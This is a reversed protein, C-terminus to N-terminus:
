EATSRADSIHSTSIRSQGITNKRTEFVWRCSLLFNSATGAVIGCAALLIPNRACFPFAVSGVIAVGYNVAAGLSCAAVFKPLRRFMHGTTPRFTWFENGFFNALMALLIAVGRAPPITWGAALFLAFCTLDVVAGLAGVMSFKLFQVSRRFKFHSLRALHRLYNCQEKLSLKSQGRKRDAFHIPVEAVHRCGTKVLIELAIKYGVPDWTASRQFVPRPIAFYGAMPDKIRTFPRALWTAARSNLQRFLGWSEDTTGGAVYRSGVSMEAGSDRLAELLQPLAEPPHSLDADMCVLYDGRAEQFGRLVASSLGREDTCEILRVPHGEGQLRQVAEDTGDHSADDVIIIEFLSELNNLSRTVRHVLEDINEAERYTPVVVSISPSPNDVGSSATLPM